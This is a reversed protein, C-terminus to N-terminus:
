PVDFHGPGLAKERIALARQALPIAESFNGARYLKIVRANVATKEDSQAFSPAILSCGISLM